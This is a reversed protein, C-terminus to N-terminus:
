FGCGWIAPWQTPWSTRKLFDPIELAVNKPDHVPTQQPGSNKHHELALGQLITNIEQRRASEKMNRRIKKPGALQYWTTLVQSPFVTNIDCAVAGQIEGWGGLIKIEATFQYETIEENNLGHRQANVKFNRLTM